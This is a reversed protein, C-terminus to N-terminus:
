ENGQDKRTSQYWDEMMQKAQVRGKDDFLYEAAIKAFWDNRMFPPLAFTDIRWLGGRSRSVILQGEDVNALWRNKGSNFKWDLKMISSM